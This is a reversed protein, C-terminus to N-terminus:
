RVDHPEFARCPGLMTALVIANQVDQRTGMLSRRSYRHRAQWASAVQPESRAFQGVSARSVSDAVPTEQVEEPFQSFQEDQAPAQQERPGFRKMVFSYLLVAAFILVYLLEEPFSNM